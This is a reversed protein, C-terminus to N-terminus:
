GFISTLNRHFSRGAADNSDRIEGEASCYLANGRRWGMEKSTVKNFADNSVAASSREMPHLAVSEDESSTSLRDWFSHTM